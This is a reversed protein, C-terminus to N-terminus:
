TRPATPGVPSASWSQSLGSAASTQASNLAIGQIWLQWGLFLFVLVGATILVEGAIGIVARVVSGGRAPRHEEGAPQGGVRAARQSRRTPPETFPSNLEPVSEM